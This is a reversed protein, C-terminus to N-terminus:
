IKKALASLITNWYVAACNAFLVRMPLPVVLFNIFNVFPWFRWNAKLTPLLRHKIATTGAQLVNQDHATYPPFARQVMEFAYYFGSAVSVSGITQDVLIMVLAKAFNSFNSPVPLQSLANFWIHSIPAIYIGCVTSFVLLRRKDLSFATSLAAAQQNGNDAARTTSKTIQKYTLIQLLFDGLAGVLASTVIKTMYPHVILARNYANFLTIASSAIGGSKTPTALVAAAQLHAMTHMSNDTRNLARIAKKPPNAVLATASRTLCLLVLVLLWTVLLM